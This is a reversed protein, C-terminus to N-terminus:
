VHATEQIPAIEVPIPAIALDYTCVAPKEQEIIARVLAEDLLHGANPCLRVSFHFPKGGGLIATPGLETEGLVFGRRSATHIQIPQEYPSRMPDHMPLGTYIHLYFQLGHRTGRWRYIEMARKILSRQQEVSWATENQWGVWQALFPLLSEPSTMPDLYAWMTQLTNVAPEFSQEFIKMLRGIFDVERYVAPLFEPYLSRPRLYLRFPESALLEGTEGHVRVEGHYDLNLMQEPSLSERGEFFDPDPRFRVVAEIPHERQLASGETYLSYWAHPINGSVQLRYNLSQDGRHELRVILEGVEGPCLCLSPQTTTQTDALAGWTALSSAGVNPPNPVSMPLLKLSITRRDARQSM